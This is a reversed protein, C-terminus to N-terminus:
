GPALRRALDAVVGSVVGRTAWVAATIARRPASNSGRAEGWKGLPCSVVPMTLKVSLRARDRQGCGCSGCFGVEDRPSAQRKPCAMCHAKRADYVELPVPGQVALSREARFYDVASAKPEPMPDARVVAQDKPSWQTNCEADEVRRWSAPQPDPLVMRLTIGTSIATREYLACTIPM